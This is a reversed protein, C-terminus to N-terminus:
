TAEVERAVALAPEVDPMSWAPTPESGWERLGYRWWFQRVWEPPHPHTVWAPLGSMAAELTGTSFISVVPRALETLSGRATEFTVGQRKMVAHLARSAADRENPHPRYDSPVRRAFDVYTAATDRRLLETGHLQGLMLPRDSTPSIAPARSAHWLLQSGVVRGTVGDGSSRWMDVDGDSWALVHAGPPAPPAWPTLLGHQVVLVPIDRRAAWPQVQESVPLYTGLTLVARVSTSLQGVDTFVQATSASMAAPLMVDRPAIVATRRADLHLLPEWLCPRTSARLQDIVVLATPEEPPVHM